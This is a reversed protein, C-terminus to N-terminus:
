SSIVEGETVDAAPVFANGDLAVSVVWLLELLLFPGANKGESCSSNGAPTANM